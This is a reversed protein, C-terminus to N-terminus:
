KNDRRNRGVKGTQKNVRTKLEVSIVDGRVKAFVAVFWPQMTIAFAIEHFFYLLGFFLVFTLFPRRLFVKELFGEKILLWVDPKVRLYQLYYLNGIVTNSQRNNVKGDELRRLQPLMGKKKQRQESDFTRLRLFFFPNM